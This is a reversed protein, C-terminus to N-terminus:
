RALAPARKRTLEFFNNGRRAIEIMQLYTVDIAARKNEPSM